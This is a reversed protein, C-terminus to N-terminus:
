AADKPQSTSTAADFNVLEVTCSGDKDDVSVEAVLARLFRGQNEATMDDWVKSFNLLAAVFWDRHHEADALSEVDQEAARQRREADALKTAEARLKEEILQRARGEFQMLEETLKKTKVSADAIQVALAARVEALTKREKALRATLKREVREALTGGATAEAIRAVVFEELAGAPLPRTPCREKGFKDRHSCRYFRYTKGSAKTTSAPTMADGCCGCRLIGRLVYDPNTGTIRLERGSAGLLKQAQKYTADDILRPHEGDFVEDGYVMQGIYLPSKLM